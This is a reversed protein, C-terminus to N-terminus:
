ICECDEFLGEFSKIQYDIIIEINEVNENENLYNRKIEENYNDNFYIHFYPKYRDTINIFKCYKNEIPTVEIEIKSYEKIYDKRKKNLENQLKKNYRIVELLKNQKLNDFIQKLIYKSRIKIVQNQNYINKNNVKM